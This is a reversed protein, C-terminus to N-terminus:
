PDTAPVPPTVAKKVVSDLTTGRATCGYAASGEDKGQSGAICADYGFAAVIAALDGTEVIAQALIVRSSTEVVALRTEAETLPVATAAEVGEVVAESSGVVADTRAEEVEVDHKNTRDGGLSQVLVTGGIGAGLGIAAAIAIFTLMRKEM